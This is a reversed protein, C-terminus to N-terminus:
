EDTFDYHNKGKLFNEPQHMQFRREDMEHAFITLLMERLSPCNTLM